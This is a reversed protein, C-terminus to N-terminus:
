DGTNRLWKRDDRHNYRLNLAKDGAALDLRSVQQNVGELCGALGPCNRHKQLREILASKVVYRKATLADGIRVRVIVIAEIVFVKTGHLAYKEMDHIRHSDDM